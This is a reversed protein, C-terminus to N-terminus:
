REEHTPNDAAFAALEDVTVPGDLWSAVQEAVREWEADAAADAPEAAALADAVTRLPAGGDPAALRAVLARFEDDTM